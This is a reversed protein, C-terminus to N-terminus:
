NQLTLDWMDANKTFNFEYGSFFDSIRSLLERVTEADASIKEKETLELGWDGM